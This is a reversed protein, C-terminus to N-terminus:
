VIILLIVINVFNELCIVKIGWCVIIVLEECQYDKNFECDVIFEQCMVGVFFLVDFIVLFFYNCKGVFVDIVGGGVCDFFVNVGIVILFFNLIYVDFGYINVVFCMGFVIGDNVIGEWCLNNLVFIFQLFMNMQYEVLFDVIVVM